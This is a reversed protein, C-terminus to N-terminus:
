AEMGELAEMAEMDGAESLVVADVGTGTVSVEVDELEM